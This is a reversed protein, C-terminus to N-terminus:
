LTLAKMRQEQSKICRSTKLGVLQKVKDLYDIMTKEKAEYCGEVQMAVLYSDTYAILKKAKM